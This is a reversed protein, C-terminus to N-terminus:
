RMTNKFAIKVKQFSLNGKRLKKVFSKIKGKAILSCIPRFCYKFPLPKGRRIDYNSLGELSNQKKFNNQKNLLL